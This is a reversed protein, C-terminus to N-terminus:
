RADARGAPPRSRRADRADQDGPARARRAPAVVRGHRRARRLRLRTRHLRRRPPAAVADGADRQRPGAKQEHATAVWDAGARAARGPPPPAGAREGGGPEGGRAARRRDTRAPLYPARELPDHAAGARTTLCSILQVFASRAPPHDLVQAREFRGAERPRTAGTALRPPRELRPPEALRALVGDGDGPRAAVRDPPRPRRPCREFPPGRERQRGYPRARARRGYPRSARRTRPKRPRGPRGGATTVPRRVPAGRRLTTPAAAAPYKMDAASHAAFAACQEAIARRYAPRECVRSQYASLGPFAGIVDLSRAIKLVSATMLDAISFDDGALWRRGGLARELEGLRKEVMALARPRRVAKEAEDKLFFDVEALNMLFPEVSNLAAFYYSLALGREGEDAPLLRRGRLAVDLVIAGSEFLAPRGDEEMLPVQGFPQRARYERSRQDESDILRVQYPWGVENLVWRVRHDRVQGQAFPPVWKFATVTIV